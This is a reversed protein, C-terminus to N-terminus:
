ETFQVPSDPTYVRPLRPSLRTLIEYPITGAQAALDAATIAAGGDSGLFTVPDGLDPPPHGTLDLVVQDMSIRGVVPVQRGRPLAGLQGSAPWPLGDGYGIPVLALRSPRPAKWTSGYGVPQGAPVDRVQTIRGRLALVPALRVPLMRGAPPVGYTALGPRVLDLRAPPFWLAAASNCAHARLPDPGLGRAASVLPEFRAWQEGTGAQDAAESCAFHTLLGALRLEPRSQVTHCLAIAAEPEIGARGMGTDVKVHVAARGRGRRAAAALAEVGGPSSVASELGHEVVLDAQDPLHLGLVVVRGSVGSERLEAGEEPLAVGAGWCGAALAARAVPVLGHGYANAKVVALIETGCWDRLRRLNRQYAALDIDLWAARM